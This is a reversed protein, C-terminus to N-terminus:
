WAAADPLMHQLLNVAQRSHQRAAPAALPAPTRGWSSDEAQLGFQVLEATEKCLLPPMCAQVLQMDFSICEHM